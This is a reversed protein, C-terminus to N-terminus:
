LVKCKSVGAVKPPLTKLIAQATQQYYHRTVAKNTPDAREAEAHIAEALTGAKHAESAGRMEKLTAPLAAAAQNYDDTRLSKEKPKGRVMVRAYYTGNRHRYLNELKSRKLRTGKPKTAM